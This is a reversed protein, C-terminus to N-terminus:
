SIYGKSLIPSARRLIPVPCTGPFSTTVIQATIRAGHRTIQDNAGGVDGFLGHGRDAALGALEDLLLERLDRPLVAVHDHVVLPEDAREADVRGRVFLHNALVRPREPRVREVLQM